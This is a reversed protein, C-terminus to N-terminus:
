ISIGKGPEGPLLFEPSDIGRVGGVVDDGLTFKCWFDPLLLRRGSGSYSSSPVEVSFSDPPELSMSSSLPSSVLREVSRLARTFRGGGM